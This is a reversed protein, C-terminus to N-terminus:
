WQRSSQTRCGAAIQPVGVDSVLHDYGTPYSVAAVISLEDENVQAVPKPQRLDDKIGFPGGLGGGGV